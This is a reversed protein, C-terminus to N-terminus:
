NSWNLLERYEIKVVWSKDMPFIVLITWTMKEGVELINPFFHRLWKDWSKRISLEIRRCVWGGHFYAVGGSWIFDKNNKKKKDSVFFLINIYSCIYSLYFFCFFSFFGLSPHSTRGVCISCIIKSKRGM